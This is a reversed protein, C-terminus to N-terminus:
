LFNSQLFLVTRLTHVSLPNKTGIGETDPQATAQLNVWEKQAQYFHIKKQIKWFCWNAAYIRITLIKWSFHIHTM